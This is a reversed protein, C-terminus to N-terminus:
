LAPDVITPTDDLAKEGGFYVAEGFPESRRERRM